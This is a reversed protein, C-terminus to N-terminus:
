DSLAAYDIQTVTFRQDRFGIVDGVRKELIVQALPSTWSLRGRNLDAEDIGVFTWAQEQGKAEKLTVTAGFLARDRPQKLPDIVVMASLRDNLFRLRREVIQRRSQADLAGGQLTTREKEFGAVEARLRREGLPTM